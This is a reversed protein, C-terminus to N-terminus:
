SKVSDDQTYQIFKILMITRLRKKKNGPFLGCGEEIFGGNLGFSRLSFNTQVRSGLICKAKTQPATTHKYINIKSNFRIYQTSSHCM